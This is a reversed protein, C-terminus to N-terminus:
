IYINIEKQIIIKLDRQSFIHSFIKLISFNTNSSSSTYLFNSCFKRAVFNILNKKRKTIILILEYMTVTKFCLTFRIIRM